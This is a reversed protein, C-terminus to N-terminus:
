GRQGEIVRLGDRSMHIDNRRKYEKIRLEELVNLHVKVLHTVKIDIENNDLTERKM